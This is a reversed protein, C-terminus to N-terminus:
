TLPIPQPVRADDYGDILAIARREDMVAFATGDQLAVDDYALPRIYVVDGPRLTECDEACALVRFLSPYLLEAHLVAIGAPTLGNGMFPVGAVRRERLSFSALAPVYREWFLAADEFRERTLAPSV